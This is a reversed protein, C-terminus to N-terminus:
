VKTEQLTHTDLLINLIREAQKLYMINGTEVYLNGFKILGNVEVRRFLRDPDKAKAQSKFLIPTIVTLAVLLSSLYFINLIFPQMKLRDLEWYLYGLTVLALLSLIPTVVGRGVDVKPM